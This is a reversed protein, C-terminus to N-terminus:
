TERREIDPDIVPPQEGDEARLLRDRGCGCLTGVIATLTLFLVLARSEM